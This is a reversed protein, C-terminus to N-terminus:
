SFKPRFPPIEISASEPGRPCTSQHQPLLLQSTDVKKWIPEPWVTCLVSASATKSFNTEEIKPMKQSKKKLNLQKAAFESLLIQNMNWILGSDKSFNLLYQFSNLDFTRSHIPKEDELYSCDESPNVLEGSKIHVKEHRKLKYNDRFAKNCVQCVFNKKKDM